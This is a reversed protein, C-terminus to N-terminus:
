QGVRRSTGKMDMLRKSKGPTWESYTWEMTNDSIKTTGEGVTKGMPGVGKMSLKFTRSSDDYTADGHSQSGYNDIWFVNFKKTDANWTWIGVGSFKAEGMSGEFRELAVTRDAEWTVTSRGSSTSANQEGEMKIEGTGEWSGVLMGLKDLEPARAPPKDMQMSMDGAHTSECGALLGFAAGFLVAFQVYKM